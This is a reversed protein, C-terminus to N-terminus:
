SAMETDKQQGKAWDVFNDMLLPWAQSEDFNSMDPLTEECFRLFGQWQDLTLRKYDQQEKLFTQFATLHPCDPLVVSLMAVCTEVDVTKQREETCCFQFAYKYFDRFIHVQQVEAELKPLSKKLKDVTDAHLAMLGRRWEELSFYGMRQANMKFALMLVRVDSPDLKLQKCLKEIGEAGIQDEMNPDRYKEFLKNINAAEKAM